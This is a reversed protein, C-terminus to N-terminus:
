HNSLFIEFQNSIPSVLLTPRNQFYSEAQVGSKDEKNLGCVLLYCAYWSLFIDDNQLDAASDFWSKDRGSAIFDRAPLGLRNLESKLLRIRNKFGRYNAYDLVNALERASWYDSGGDTQRRIDEFSSTIM